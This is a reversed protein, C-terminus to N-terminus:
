CQLLEKSLYNYDEELIPYISDEGGDMLVVWCDGMVNKILHSIREVNIVITSLGKTKIQVFKM